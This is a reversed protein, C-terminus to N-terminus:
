NSFKRADPNDIWLRNEKYFEGEPLEEGSLKLIELVTKQQVGMYNAIEDVTPKTGLEETMADMSKSLLEVQAILQKDRKDLERQEELASAIQARIAEEVTQTLPLADFTYESEAVMNLGMLLGVYAEQTLDEISVSGDSMELAIRMAEPMFEEILAAKQSETM